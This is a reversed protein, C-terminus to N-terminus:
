SLIRLFVKMKTRLYDLDSLGSFAVDDKSRAALAALAAEEAAAGGGEVEEGGGSTTAAGEDQRAEVGGEGFVVRKGKFERRKPKAGKAESTADMNAWVRRGRGTMAELFEGLKADSGSRARELKKQDESAEKAEPKVFENNSRNHKDHASSGKSYKSWPRPLSADGFPKAIEVSMKATDFFTNGYM